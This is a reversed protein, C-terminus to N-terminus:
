LIKFGPDGSIFFFDGHVLHLLVGIRRVHLIIMARPPRPDVRIKISKLYKSEWYSTM